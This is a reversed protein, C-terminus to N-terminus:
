VGQTYGLKKSLELGASRVLKGAKAFQSDTLRITPGSVGLAAVVEGSFSRVPAALCRIGPRFEEDDTGLSERNARTCEEVFDAASTITNPTYEAMGSAQLLSTVADRSMDCLLVKGLATCHLPEAQGVRTTVALAHSSSVTSTMVAQGKGLVALHANEGTQQALEALFPAALDDIRMRSNFRSALEMIRPGPLYHKQSDKVVYGRGALTAMLRHASSKEIDLLGALESLTAPGDAGVIHELLLLGRDLSQITARSTMGMSNDSVTPM